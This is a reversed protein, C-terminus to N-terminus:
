PENYIRTVSPENVRHIMINFKFRAALAKIEVEGGWKKDKKMMKCYEKVTGHDMVFNKFKKPHNRIYYVCKRRYIKYKKADGRLNDAIARFLCNGDPKM